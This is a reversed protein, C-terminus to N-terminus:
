SVQVGFVGAERIAAGVPTWWGGECTIIGADEPNTIGVFLGFPVAENFIQPSEQLDQFLLKRWQKNVHFKNEMNKTFPDRMKELFSKRSGLIHVLPSGKLGKKLKPILQFIDKTEACGKAEVARVILQTIRKQVAAEDVIEFYPIIVCPGLLAKKKSGVSGRQRIVRQPPQGKKNMVWWVDGEQIDYVGAHRTPDHMLASRLNNM